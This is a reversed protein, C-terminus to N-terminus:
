ETAGANRNALTLSKEALRAVPKSLDDDDLLYLTCAEAFLERWNKCAYPTVLPKLKKARVNSRPWVSKLTDIKSKDESTLLLNMERTSLNRFEKMWRLVLKFEAKEEIETDELYDKISGAKIIRSLIEQSRESKVFNAGITTHFMDVWEANLQPFKDLIQFHVAHMFEHIAVYSYNAKSAKEMTADSASLHIRHPSRSLNRSHIYMGTYKGKQPHIELIFECGKVLREFGKRKLVKPVSSIGRWLKDSNEDDPRTFFHVDGIWDHEQTGQYLSATDFGYVKGPRPKPGLNTVFESPRAKVTITNLHPDVQLFGILSGDDLVNKVRVLQMKNLGGTEKATQVIVYDKRNVEIKSM